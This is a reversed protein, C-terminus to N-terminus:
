KRCLPPFTPVCSGQQSSPAVAPDAGAAELVADDVGDNLGAPQDGLELAGIKNSIDTSDM